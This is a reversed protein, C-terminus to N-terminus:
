VEELRFSFGTYGYLGTNLDRKVQAPFDVRCIWSNYSGDPQEEYFTVDEKDLYLDLIDGFLNGYIRDYSVQFQRKIAVFDSVLTRNITRETVEFDIWGPEYLRGPEPLHIITTGKEIRLRGAM